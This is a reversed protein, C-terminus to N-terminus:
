LEEFRQNSSVFPLTALGTQPSRVFTFGGPVELEGGTGRKIYSFVVMQVAPVNILMLCLVREEWVSEWSAVALFLGLGRSFPDKEAENGRCMRMGQCHGANGGPSHAASDEPEDNGRRSCSFFSCDCGLSLINLVWPLLVSVTLGSVM